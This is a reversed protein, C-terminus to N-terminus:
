DPNGYFHFPQLKMCALIVSLGFFHQQKRPPHTSNKAYYNEM